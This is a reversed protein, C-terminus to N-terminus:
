FSVRVGGAPRIDISGLALSANARHAFDIAAYRGGESRISSEVVGKQHYRRVLEV